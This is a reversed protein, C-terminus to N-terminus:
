PSTPAPAGKGTRPHSRSAPSLPPPQARAVSPPHMGEDARLCHRGGAASVPPQPLSDQCRRLPTHASTTIIAAAPPAKIALDM